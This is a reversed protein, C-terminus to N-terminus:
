YSKKIVFNQGSVKCARLIAQVYSRQMEDRDDAADEAERLGNKLDIQVPSDSLADSEYIDYKNALWFILQDDTMWYVYAALFKGDTQGVVCFQNEEQKGHQDVLYQLQTKIASFQPYKAIQVWGAATKKVVYEVGFRACDQKLADVESQTWPLIYDQPPIPVGRPLVDRTLDFYDTSGLILDSGFGWAILKNQTPWYIYPVVTSDDDDKYAVICFHNVSHFGMTNVLAQLQIRVDAFDPDNQISVIHNGSARASPGVCFVLLSALVLDLIRPLKYTL